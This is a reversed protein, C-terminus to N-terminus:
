VDEVDTIDEKKGEVVTEGIGSITITVASRSGDKKAEFESMPLLRDTLMKIATMQGPHEDDLAISVAKRLIPDASEALIAKREAMLQSKSLPVVPATSSVSNMGFANKNKTKM